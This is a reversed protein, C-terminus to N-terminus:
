GRKSKKGRWPKDARHLGDDDSASEEGDQHATSDDRRDSDKPSTGLVIDETAQDVPEGRWNALRGDSNLTARPGNIPMKPAPNEGRVQFAGGAVDRSAVTAPESPAPADSWEGGLARSADDSHVIQSRGDTHYRWSPFSLPKVAPAEEPEITGDAIGSARSERKAKADPDPSDSWGDGLADEETPSHVIKAPKTRHYRWTPYALKPMEEPTPQGRRMSPSQSNQDTM